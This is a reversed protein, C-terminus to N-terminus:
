DLSAFLDEVSSYPKSVRGEAIDLDAQRELLVWRFNEMENLTSSVAKEARLSIELRAQRARKSVGFNMLVSRTERLTELLEVTSRQGSATIVLMEDISARDMECDEFSTRFNQFWGTSEDHFKATEKLTAMGRNMALLLQAQASARQFFGGTASVLPRLAEGSKKVEAAM